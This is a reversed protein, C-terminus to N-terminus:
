PAKTKALAAVAIEQFKTAADQATILICGDGDAIKRLADILDDRENVATVILAANAREEAVGIARRRGGSAMTAIQAEGSADYILTARYDLAVPEIRKWPRPTARNLDIM